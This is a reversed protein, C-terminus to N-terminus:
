LKLGIQPEGNIDFCNAGDPLKYKVRGWFTYYTEDNDTIFTNIYDNTWQIPTTCYENNLDKATTTSNIL